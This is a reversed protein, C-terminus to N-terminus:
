KKTKANIKKKKTKKKTDGVIDKIQDRLWAAQEYDERALTENLAENLALLRTSPCAKLTEGPGRGIHLTKSSSPTNDDLVSNLDISITDTFVNYCEPCGMLNGMQIDGLITGCNGCCVGTKTEENMEENLSGHLHHQLVPCESCMTYRSITKGVIETYNVTAEKKCNSCELPRESMKKGQTFFKLLFFYSGPHVRVM